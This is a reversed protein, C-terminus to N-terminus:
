KLFIFIFSKICLVWFFGGPGGYMEPGGFGGMGPGGMPPMGGMGGMGMMPNFAGSSALLEMQKNQM